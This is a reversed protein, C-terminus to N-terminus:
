AGAEEVEEQVISPQLWTRGDQAILAEAEEPGWSGAAYNPFDVPVVTQWAELVPMVVSWAADVQDARMFLTADGQIVDLLLTEYAEPSGTHFAEAYSFRMEVPSLLMELGPRKAQFRLSIGEDPQIHLTIRNPQWDLVAPLPFSQHPVPRFQVHVESDRTPLRKGTRLYFPVDQWRWNDVFLKAAAFTETNSAPDVGPESRYGQVQDGQMWGPGYQGRVAYLHAEDPPIRRVAHLVDVKKNRLEDAEFSVPPEMAILCLLQLLHNQIMDRLAGAHEYYGGRHEVGVTEAVTIQVHDIYRRDWLPEFMANAFRFALINQVTEKGLYHDIRYIQSEGFVATLMGNLARASDLDHGFPKELVIRARERQEALGCQGLQKVITEVLFPPTAQYFVQEAPAGWAKEQAKIRDSLRTFAAADAFDATAYSLHPAFRGWTEDDPKRRSYLDVGDRLHDRFAADDMEKRDMGIICFREPLWGDVFLNYLAPVLKRWTLDGGAGFIVVVAPKNRPRRAEQIEEPRNGNRTSPAKPTS